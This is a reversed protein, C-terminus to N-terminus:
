YMITCHVSDIKAIMDAAESRVRALSDGNLHVQFAADDQYEEYVMVKNEAQKPRLVDFRLTGSEDKLCRERHALLLPVVEDMRGEAIDITTVVALRKM